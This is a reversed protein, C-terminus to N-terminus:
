LSKRKILNAVVVIRNDSHPLTCTYLTLRPAANRARPPGILWSAHRSVVRQMAVKYTVIEHPTRLHVISGSGLKNLKYFWWKGVNRHAAIVCNGWEGPLASYPDHGPGLRLAAKSVGQVVEADLGIRPIIIRTPIWGHHKKGARQKSSPPAKTLRPQPQQTNTNYPRPTVPQPTPALSTAMPTGSSTVTASASATAAPKVPTSGPVHAQPTPVERPAGELSVVRRAPPAAEPQPACGDNQQVSWFAMGSALGVVILLAFLSYLWHKM